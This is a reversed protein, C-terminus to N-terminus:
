GWNRVVHSSSTSLPRHPCRPYLQYQANHRTARVAPLHLRHHLPGSGPLPLQLPLRVPWPQFSAQPPNQQPRPLRHPSPPRHINHEPNIFKTM